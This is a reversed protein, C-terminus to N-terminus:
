LPLNLTSPEVTIKDEIHSVGYRVGDLLHFTEKDEIKETPDDNADLERSYSEFEDILDPLDDFVLLRGSKLMGYVRDIGVEVDKIPPAHIPLGAASFENRWQDESWSGGTARPIMPEGALIAAKHEAATKGGAKYTRHIFYRGTERGDMREAAFFVAATNVGGFDVGLYRKWDSPITFRRVKCADTFVDYIVGAPREFEGLYRMRFKWPPLKARMAEFEAKPFSPNATSPFNVLCYDPDGAKARDHMESKLWGLTYPTSSVLLRGQFISLRGLIAEFSTRKFKKQGAEDAHCAKITASELSDPDQAHGFLIRTPANQPGGFLIEEGRTSLTFLPVPNERLTGLQLRQVFLRRYEPLCKMDLLRFTPAAVLYDGPGQERMERLMWWPGLVTKGSQLGALVLIFRARSKMAREQGDHYAFRLRGSPTVVYPDTAPM